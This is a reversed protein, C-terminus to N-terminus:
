RQWRTVGTCIFDLCDRGRIPAGRWTRYGLLDVDQIASPRAYMHFQHPAVAGPANFLKPWAERCQEKAEKANNAFCTYFYEKTERYRASQTDFKVYYIKM